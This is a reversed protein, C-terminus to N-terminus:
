QKLLEKTKQTIRWHEIDSYLLEHDPHKFQFTYKYDIGYIRFSSDRTYITMDTDSTIHKHQILTGFQAFHYKQIGTTFATPGTMRHIDNPYRNTHINAVVTEIVSKLIPHGPAFLLAWQVFMGPNGEATIIAEDTTQILSDLPVNIYSDMDLYIGGYKYLVLYRWLDVKAVIINLKNYANVIDPSDYYERRVFEDIEDDILLNYTYGSNDLLMKSQREKLIGDLHKTKWSQWIIKPIGM